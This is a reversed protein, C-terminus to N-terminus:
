RGGIMVECRIAPGGLGVPIPQKKGCFGSSDWIFDDSVMDVTKLLEFAVGSITTDRLAKGLKGKKIEYGFSISFMFEGTTDAQGNGSLIFYYGDDISSIMQGIKNKGPLIATNRMRVIPEDNYLYARANGTLRQKFIECNDKSNLYGKLIGNEIIVADEALTGEDDVFVPVPCIDGSFHHAFDVLNVLSSAVQKNLYDKAVSGGLVLDAEVTHGIAEHALMGSIRSDLICKKIGAEPFIGESKKKLNEYINNVKPYLSDLSTFNHSFRGIGGFVDYLEIPQGDKILTLIVYIYSRPYLISYTAGDSTALDKKLIQQSFIVNRSQLDSFNKFIYNDLEKLFDIYSNPTEDISINKTKDFDFVISSPRSPLNHSSGKKSIFCANDEAEKILENAVKHNIESNSSFGWKGNCYSRASIGKVKTFSNNIIDGNLLSIRTDQNEQVRLECYQKSKKVIESLEIPFFM